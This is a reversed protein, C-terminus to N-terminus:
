EKIKLSQAFAKRMINACAYRSARDIHLLSMGL